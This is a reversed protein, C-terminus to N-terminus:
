AGDPRDELQQRLRLIRAAVDRRFTDQEDVISAAPGDNDGAGRQAMTAGPELGTMKEYNRILLGLARTEREHDAITLADDQRMKAELRELQKEVAEFLRSHMGQRGVLGPPAHSAATQSVAPGASTKCSRLTPPAGAGKRRPWGERRARAYIASASVAHQAAVTSVPLKAAVYAARIAAWDRPSPDTM